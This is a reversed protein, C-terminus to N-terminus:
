SRLCTVAQQWLLLGTSGPKLLMEGMSLRGAGMYNIWFLTELLPAKGNEMREGQKSAIM